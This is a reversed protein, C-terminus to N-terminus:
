RVLGNVSGNVSTGVLQGVRLGVLGGSILKVWQSSPEGTSWGGM